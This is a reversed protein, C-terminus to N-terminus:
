WEIGLEKGESEAWQEAEKTTEFTEGPVIEKLAWRTYYVNSAWEEWREKWYSAPPNRPDDAPLTSRPEDLKEAIMRFAEKSKLYGFYRTAAKHMESMDKTFLKEAERYAGKNEYGLRGMGVLCACIINTRKEAKMTSYLLSGAKDADSPQRAVAICAAVAIAHNRDRVYKRLEGLILPHDFGGMRDILEIQKNDDKRAEKMEAQFRTVEQRAITPDELKLGPDPVVVGGARTPDPKGVMLGIDEQGLLPLAFLSLLLLPSRKM